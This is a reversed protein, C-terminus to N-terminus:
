PDDKDLAPIRQIIANLDKDIRATWGHRLLITTDYQFILAPGKLLHGPRLLNREYCPVTEPRVRRMCVSRWNTPRLTDTTSPRVEMRADNSYGSPISGRIRVAVCEVAREKAQYGYRQSHAAHFAGVSADLHQTSVPLGLPVEIEYSQGAYRLDLSALLQPTGPLAAVVRHRLASVHQKLPALDKALAATPRVLAQSADFTIDALVLGLASLVGPLRPVVIRRVGLAEALECAHLPGAGGFPVLTYRRPDHGQEVSVRRLAREMTANAVRIVGMATAEAGMGLPAGLRALAARTNKLAGSTDPLFRYPDLSGLVVHADTVTVQRGGRGYCVPGPVAGASMPGVRLAGGSDVRAISGGGAGVTHIDVSPLKLPLGGIESEATRPIDGPCLAVDTSTGGMDFTIIRPSDTNLAAQAVKFAGVVGGAPGSLVLRVPQRAAHAVDITGGSSQMVWVKRGGVAAALHELYRSVLPQVYANIVTTATREYERYEPLLEVSLSLRVSPVLARLVQAAQREHSENFFSFLFVVALSEAGCASIAQAVQHLENVDLPQLVQGKADVRERVTFRRDRPVLEAPREQSLRYLHPRHQRGIALVDRFGATTLLATRAGRRELLANTATTTGHVIVARPSVGVSRLGQAVAQSQDQATTPVKLVRLTPGDMYVFDTFTGGVDIGVLEAM